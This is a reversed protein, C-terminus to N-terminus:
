PKANLLQDIVPAFGDPPQAGVLAESAGTRNNRIVTTPTGQVGAATGDAVDQEIVKATGADDVCKTLAKSDVGSATALKAFSQNETLGAGNSRTSAFLADAFKWFADNGGLQAACESAIAEKRAAPDHFPLPFHRAVWNVRGAYRDVLAQPTAHFQRGDEFEVNAIPRPSAHPTFTFKRAPVARADPIRGAESQGQPLSFCIGILSTALITVVLVVLGLRWQRPNRNAVGRGLEPVSNM